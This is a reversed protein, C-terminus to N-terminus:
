RAATPVTNKSAGFGRLLECTDLFLPQGQVPLQLAVGILPVFSAKAHADERLNM